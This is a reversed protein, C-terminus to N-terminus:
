KMRTKDEYENKQKPTMYDDGYHITLTHDYGIPVYAKVGNMDKSLYDSYDQTTGRYRILTHTKMNIKVLLKQLTFPLKRLYPFFTYNKFNISSMIKNERVEYVSEEQHIHPKLCIHAGETKHIINFYLNSCTIWGELNRIADLVKPAYELPYGIDYDDDWEIRKGERIAGLLTGAELWWPINNQSLLATIQKFGEDLITANKTSLSEPSGNKESKKRKM